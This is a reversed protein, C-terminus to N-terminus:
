NRLTHMEHEEYSTIGLQKSSRRVEERWHEAIPAEKQKTREESTPWGMIALYKECCAAVHFVCTQTCFTRVRVTPFMSDPVHNKSRLNRPICKNLSALSEVLIGCSKSEFSRKAM